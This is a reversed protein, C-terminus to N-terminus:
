VSLKSVEGGEDVAFPTEFTLLLHLPVPPSRLIPNAKGEAKRRFFRQCRDRLPKATQRGLHIWGNIFGAARAVMKMNRLDACDPQNLADQWEENKLSPLPFQQQLNFGYPDGVGWGAGERHTFASAHGGMGKLCHIFSRCFQPAQFAVFAGSPGAVRFSTRHVSEDPLTKLVDRCDGTLIKVTM